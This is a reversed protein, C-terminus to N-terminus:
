KLDNHLRPWGSGHSTTPTAPLNKVESLVRKWRIGRPELGGHYRNVQGIEVRVDSAFILASTPFLPVLRHLVAM